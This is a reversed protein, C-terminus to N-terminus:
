EGYRGMIATAKKRRDRIQAEQGGNKQLVYGLYKFERVEEIRKGKWRWVKKSERSGRKRFRVIETKEANLKMKKGNLYEELREIMSKMEEENEALLVTDDAYAM